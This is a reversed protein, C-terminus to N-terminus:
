PTGKRPLIYEWIYGTERDVNMLCDEMLNFVGDIQRELKKVRSNYWFAHVLVIAAVAGVIMLGVLGIAGLLVLDMNKVGTRTEGM